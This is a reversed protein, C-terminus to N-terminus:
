LLSALFSSSLTNHHVPFSEYWDDADSIKVGFIRTEIEENSRATCQLYVAASAVLSDHGKLILDVDLVGDETM